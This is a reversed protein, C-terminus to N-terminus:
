GSLNEISTVLIAFLIYMCLLILFRYYPSSYVYKPCTLNSLIITKYLKSNNNNNNDDTISIKIKKKKSDIAVLHLM